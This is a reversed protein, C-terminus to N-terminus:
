FLFPNLLQEKGFFKCAGRYMARAHICDHWIFRRCVKRLSWEEGFSGQLVPNELFSPSKELSSFGEKRCAAIDPGDEAPVGIEGFYYSNVNKTHAYMERATCPVPGYFTNRAPLLPMHPDPVSDFLQQFDKASALALNKLCLYEEQTLPKREALFLIDSDADAIELSSQKKEQIQIECSFSGKDLARFRPEYRGAWRLYRRIESEMKSAAEWRSKGRTFAGPFDIAHLLCGNNEELATQILLTDM